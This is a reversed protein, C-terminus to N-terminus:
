ILDHERAYLAIEVNSEAGLKELIHTRHTSVTKISIGLERAVHGVRQGQARHRLMELERSSRRTHPPAGPDAATLSELALEQAAESLYRRGSAVRHMAAELSAVDALKNLYGHAGAALARVAFERESHQSLVLVRVQPRLEHLRGLFELGGGPMDLDTVVLDVPRDLVIALAEAGGPAEGVLQLDASREVIRAIGQRVVVHDDVLLVRYM